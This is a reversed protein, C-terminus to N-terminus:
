VNFIHMTSYLARDSIACVLQQGGLAHETLCVSVEDNDMAGFSSKERCSLRYGETFFVCKEPRPNSAPLWAGPASLPCFHGIQEQASSQATDCSRTINRGYM